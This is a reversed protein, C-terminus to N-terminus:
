EEGVDEEGDGDAAVAYMGASTLSLTEGVLLLGVSLMAAGSWTLAPLDPRFDFAAGRGLSEAAPVAALAYIAPYMGIALLVPLVTFFDPAAVGTLWEGVSMAIVNGILPLAVWLPPSFIGFPLALLFASAAAPLAGIASATGFYVWFASWGDGGSASPSEASPAVPRPPQAGPADTGGLPLALEWSLTSARAPAPFRLEGAVGVLCRSLIESGINDFTVRASAVQGDAEVHVDLRVTGDLGPDLREARAHCGSVRGGADAFVSRVDVDDVGPLLTSSALAAQPLGAILLAFLFRM